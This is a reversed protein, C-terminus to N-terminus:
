ATTVKVWCKTESSPHSSRTSSACSLFLEFCASNCSSQLIFSPSAPIYRHFYSAFTKWCIAHYSLHVPSFWRLVDRLLLLFLMMCATFLVCLKVVGTSGSFRLKLFPWFKKPCLADSQLRQKTAGLWLPSNWVYYKRWLNYLYCVSTESWSYTAQTLISVFSLIFM